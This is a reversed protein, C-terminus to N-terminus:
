NAVENIPEDVMGLGRYLGKLLPQALDLSADGIGQMVTTAVYEDAKFAPSRGFWDHTTRVAGFTNTVRLGVRWTGTYGWAKSWGEVMQLTQVTLTSVLGVDLYKTVTGDQSEREATGGGSVVEISGDDQILVHCLHREYRAAQPEANTEVTAYAEGAPHPSYRTCDAVTGWRGSRSPRLADRIRGWEQLGDDRAVPATPEAVLYVHGNGTPHDQIHGVLPDHDELAILRTRFADEGRDRQLLLRRVEADELKRKGNSSRGWYSQDVMHPALPSPPVQVILVALSDDDPNELSPLIAPSLPPKIRTASVQAIRDALGTTDCGVVALDKDRVGYILIGGDVSLSALDRAMELNADKKSSGPRTAMEKLECWASEELLGGEAADILQSWTSFTVVGLTPGLYQQAM